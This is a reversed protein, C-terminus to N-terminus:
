LPDSLAHATECKELCFGRATNVYLQNNTIDQLIKVGIALKSGKNGWSIRDTSSDGGGTYTNTWADQQMKSPDNKSYSTPPNNLTNGM